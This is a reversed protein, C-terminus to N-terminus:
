KNGFYDNDTIEPPKPEERDKFAYILVSVPIIIFGALIMYNTFLRPVVDIFDERNCNSAYAYIAAVALTGIGVLMTALQKWNM